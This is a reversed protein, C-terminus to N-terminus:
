LTAASEIRRSIRDSNVCLVWFLNVLAGEPASFVLVPCNGNEGRDLCFISYDRTSGSGQDRVPARERGCCIVPRRAWCMWWTLLKGVSDVRVRM